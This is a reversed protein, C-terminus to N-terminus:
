QAIIKKNLMDSIVNKAYQRAMQKTPNRSVAISQGTWLLKNSRLDYLNSELLVQVDTTEHGFDYVGYRYYYRYFRGYLYPTAYGPVWRQYEDVRLVRITLVGDFGKAFLKQQINSSDFTTAFAPTFAALSTTAHIGSEGLEQALM